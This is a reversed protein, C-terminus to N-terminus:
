QGHSGQFDSFLAATRSRKPRSIWRQYDEALMTQSRRLPAGWDSVYYYRLRDTDRKTLRAKEAFQDLGIIELNRYRRGNKCNCRVKGIQVSPQGASARGFRAPTIEYHVAVERFGNENCDPCNQLCSNIKQKLNGPM